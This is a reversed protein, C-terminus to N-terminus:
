RLGRVFAAIRQVEDDFQRPDTFMTNHTAGEYYKSEVTKGARRLAAEFNRAMPTANMASGGDVTGDGTGHLMLIPAHIRSIRDALDAPYGASDLAAGQVDGVALLYNLAAGGGRSHGFLVVRDARVGPLTRAAQVLTGLIQQAAETAAGPMPPADPCAIPKVFQSGPGSGRTFWCPAIALVGGRALAQAIRVYEHAFGHTGHLVIVAPFPGPGAPRAIAALMRGADTRIGIWEAALGETGAPATAAATSVAAAALISLIM